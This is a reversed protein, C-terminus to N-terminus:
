HCQVLCFLAFMSEDMDKCHCSTIQNTSKYMCLVLPQRAWQIHCWIGRHIWDEMTVEEEKPSLLMFSRNETTLNTTIKVYEKRGFYLLPNWWRAMRGSTVYADVNGIDFRKIVFENPLHKSTPEICFPTASDKNTTGEIIGEENVM